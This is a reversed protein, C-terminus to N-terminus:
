AAANQYLKVAGGVDILGGGQRNFGVFGIQGNEIYKSDAMRFLTFDMVERILYKSLDGFAVSKANAAMLPMGQDIVLPRNLLRDPAGGPNGQEYGPVFIPRGDADKIKRVAKVSQDHMLFSCAASNRYIPDVSHELDVLDDYTIEAVQGAAGAKGVPAATVLGLPQTAGNGTVFHKSTIRGVRMALLAEIYAEIDFMSDQLLEFPVAIPKSTYKFVKLDLNGFATDQNAGVPQNEGVIAGEEATADATPFNLPAGTSTRIVTAVRRLGGYAKMAETLRRFYEPAVTYGGESPVGTSMANQLDPARRARVRAAEDASLAQLGGHLYNRLMRSEENQAGPTRTAHNMIADTNGNAADEGIKALYQETRQIEANIQDIEAMGEDYSKQQDAGWKDGKHNEMLANINKAIASRRERLAQISQKM